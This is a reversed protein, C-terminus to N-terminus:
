QRAIWDVGSSATWYGLAGLGLGLVPSCIFAAPGCFGGFVAGAKGMTVAFGWGVGEKAVATAVSGAVTDDRVGTQYAEYIELGSMVVGVAGLAKGGNRGIARLTSSYRFRTASSAHAVAGYRTGPVVNKQLQRSKAGESVNISARQVRYHSAKQGWKEPLYHQLEVVHDAHWVRGDLKGVKELFAKRGARQMPNRRIATTDAVRGITGRRVEVQYRRMKQTDFSDPVSLTPGKPHSFILGPGGRTAIRAPLYDDQGERPPRYDGQDDRAPWNGDQDEAGLPPESPGHRAQKEPVPQPVKLDVAPPKKPVSESGQAQEPSPSRGVLRIWRGRIEPPLGRGANGLRITSGFERSSLLGVSTDHGWDVSVRRDGRGDDYVTSQDWEGSNWRQATVEIVELAGQPKGRELRFRQTSRGFEDRELPGVTLKWGDDRFSKMAEAARASVGDAALIASGLTAIREAAAFGSKLTRSDGDGWDTEPRLGIRTQVDELRGVGLDTDLGLGYGAASPKEVRGGMNYDLGLDYDSDSSDDADLSFGFKLDNGIDELSDHDSDSPESRDEHDHLDYDDHDVEMRGRCAEHGDDAGSDRDPTDRDRDAGGGDSDSM